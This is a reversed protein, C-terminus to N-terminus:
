EFVDRLNELYATHAIEGIAEELEKVKENVIPDGLLVDTRGSLMEKIEVQRKLISRLYVQNQTTLRILTNYVKGLNLEHRVDEPNNLIDEPNM